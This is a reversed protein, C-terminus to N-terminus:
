NNKELTYTGHCIDVTLTYTGNGDIGVPDGNDKVKWTLTGDSRTGFWYDDWSDNILIKVGWPTGATVDVTATYVGPTETATMATVGWNDNLGTYSVSTVQAGDMEYWYSMWGLSASLIYLGVGPAEIDNGGAKLKKDSNDPDQNIKDWDSSDLTKTFYFGWSSNMNVAGTYTKSDEDSLRLWETHDWLNDNGMICLVPEVTEEEAAGGEVISYAPGERSSLDITVTCEGAKPASLTIEEQEAESTTIGTSTFYLPTAIAEKLQENDGTTQDFLKSDPSAFKLKVPDTGAATYTLTWQMTQKNFTMTGSLDGSVEVSPISTDSWWNQKTNVVVYRCGNFSSTWFNWAETSKSMVFATGSVNDNGWLTGDNELFYWNAWAGLSLFGTYIGDKDPSSLEGLPSVKDTSVATGYSYDILYTVVSMELVNSYQPEINSGTSAAIRVYMPTEEGPEYGLKALEGNLAANTFQKQYVGSSMECNYYSAFDATKSIQISNSISGNPVLVDAYNTALRHNDNWNLTLALDTAKSPDLMVTNSGTLTLADGSGVTVLDGDKDCSTNIATMALLLCTFLSPHLTFFAKRNVRDMM